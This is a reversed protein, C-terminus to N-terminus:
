NVLSVKLNIFHLQRCIHTLVKLTLLLTYFLLCWEQTWYLKEVNMRPFFFFIVLYALLIILMKLKDERQLGKADM